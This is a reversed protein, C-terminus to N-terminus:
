IASILKLHQISAENTIIKLKYFVQRKLINDSRM